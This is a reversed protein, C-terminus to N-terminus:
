RKIQAMDFHRVIVNCTLYGDLTVSGGRDFCHPLKKDNCNRPIFMFSRGHRYRDAIGMPRSLDVYVM